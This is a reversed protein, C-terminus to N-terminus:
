LRTFFQIYPICAGAAITYAREIRGRRAEDAALSRGSIVFAKSARLRGCEASLQDIADPGSLVRTPYSVARFPTSM